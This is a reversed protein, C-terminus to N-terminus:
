IWLIRGYTNWAFWYLHHTGCRSNCPICIPLFNDLQNSGDRSEPVIHGASFSDKTISRLKCCPCSVESLEGNAKIWMDEKKWDPIDVKKKMSTDDMLDEYCKAIRNAANWLTEKSTHLQTITETPAKPRGPKKTEHMVEEEIDKNFEKLNHTKGCGSIKSCKIFYGESNVFITPVKMGPKHITRELTIGDNNWSGGSPCLTGVPLTYLEM